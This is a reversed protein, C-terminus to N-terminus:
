GNMGCYRESHYDNWLPSFLSLAPVQLLSHLDHPMRREFTVSDWVRNGKVASTSDNLKVM